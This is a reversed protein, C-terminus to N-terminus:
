AYRLPVIIHVSLVSVRAQVHMQLSFEIFESSSGTMLIQTNLQILNMVIIFYIYTHLVTVLTDQSRLM